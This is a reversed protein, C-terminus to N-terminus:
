RRNISDDRDIKIVISSNERYETDLVDWLVVSFLDSVTLDARTECRPYLIRIQSIANKLGIQNKYKERQILLFSPEHWICDKRHFYKTLFM